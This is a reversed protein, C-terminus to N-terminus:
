SQRERSIRSKHNLGFHRFPLRAPSLIRHGCPRTPELGEKPIETHLKRYSRPRRLSNKIKAGLIPNKFQIKLELNTQSRLIESNIESLGFEEFREKSAEIVANVHPICVSVVGFSPQAATRSVRTKLLRVESRRIIQAIQNADSGTSFRKSVSALLDSHSPRLCRHGLLKSQELVNEFLSGTVLECKLSHGVFRAVERQLAAGYRFLVQNEVKEGALSM